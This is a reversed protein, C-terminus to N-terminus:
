CYRDYFERPSLIPRGQFEKLKLLGKDGTVLCKAEAAQLTGLVPLDDKDECAGAAVKAPKVIEAHRKIWSVAEAAQKKPIKFKGTYHRQFEKLIHESLYTDFHSTELCIEVVSQCLGRVALGALLVNTDLVVKM